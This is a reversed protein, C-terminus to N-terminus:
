NLKLVMKINGRKYPGNPEIPVEKFGFKRYIYIANELITNSYLLLSDIGESRAFDISFQMLKQGIKRGRLEPAVAMKTLELIEESATPMLALTGVVKTNILAFFIHGGRDIIYKDPNRLVEEDIPEVYFYTKLWEINLDYFARAYRSRYPIIKLSKAM